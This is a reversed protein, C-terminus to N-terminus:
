THSLEKKIETLRQLHSKEEAIIRDVLPIFRRPMLDKMEYYFLISDKEADIGLELAQVDSEASTAM